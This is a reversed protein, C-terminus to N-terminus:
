RPIGGTIGMVWDATVRALGKLAEKDDLEASKLMHFSHDAGEILHLAAKSGLKAIIPRLLDPETFSDRTGQLFLMPVAVKFLHEAREISPKGPAHLPFGFFVVGRVETPLSAMSTMRGGLSKGGAVLPLDPAAKVAALVASQVTATLIPGPDPSKRGHEMYPFNFRFTAIGLGGLERAMSEMFDSRMGAGAGHAFVLLARADAPRLLLAGVHGSSASAQFTLNKLDM